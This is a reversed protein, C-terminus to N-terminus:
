EGLKVREWETKLTKATHEKLDNTYPRLTDLTKKEGVIDLLCVNFKTLSDIFLSDKDPNLMFQAKLTLNRIQILHESSVDGNIALVEVLAMMESIISRLENIWNQRNVSLVNQRFNLEAINNASEIEKSVIEKASAIQEQITKENAEIQKNLTEKSDNLQKNLLNESSMRQKKSTRIVGWFGILAVVIALVSPLLLEVISHQDDSKLLLEGNHSVTQIHLSSDKLRNLENKQTEIVGKLSDIILSDKLTPNAM